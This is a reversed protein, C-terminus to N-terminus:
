ANGRGTLTIRLRAFAKDRQNRITKEAKGLARSITVAKPDISDIPIGRRLMEVIRSQLPPLADIAADLRSRYRADDLEAASLPDYSGVAEEVEASFENEDIESELNASRNEERWVARQADRRLNAVTGDFNVEYYDLREDYCQRDEMLAEKFRDFARERIQTKSMSLTEGDANDARPLRQQVREALLTYLRKFVANEGEDKHSRVFYVLSESSVYGSQGRRRECRVLLEACPLAALEAIEAEVVSRRQYLVGERTRKKLPAIM